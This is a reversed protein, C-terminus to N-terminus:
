VRTHQITEVQHVVDTGSMCEIYDNCLDDLDVEESYVGSDPHRAVEGVSLNKEAVERSKKKEEWMELIEPGSGVLKLTPAPTSNSSSSTDGGQIRAVYQTAVDDFKGTNLLTMLLDKAVDMGGQSVLVNVNTSASSSSSIINRDRSVGACRKPGSLGQEKRVVMSSISAWDLSNTVPAPTHSISSKAYQVDALM